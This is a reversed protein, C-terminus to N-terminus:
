IEPLSRLLHDAADAIDVIDTSHAFVRHAFTEQVSSRFFAHVNREVVAIVPLRQAQVHRDHRNMVKSHLLVVKDGCRVSTGEPNKIIHRREALQTRRSSFWSVGSGGSTGAPFFGGSPAM